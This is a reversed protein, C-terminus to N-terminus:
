TNGQGEGCLYQYIHATHPPSSLLVAAERRHELRQRLGPPLTDQQIQIRLNVREIIHSYTSQGVCQIYCLM